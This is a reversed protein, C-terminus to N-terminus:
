GSFSEFFRQFMNSRILLISGMILIGIIYLLRLNSKKVQSGRYSTTDSNYKQRLGQRIRDKLQDEKGEEKYSGIRNQLDEKVPDYFRPLYDFKRPKPRKGFGIGAM